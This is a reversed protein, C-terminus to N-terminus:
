KHRATPTPSTRKKQTHKEGAMRVKPFYRYKHSSMHCRMADLSVNRMKLFAHYSGYHSCSDHFWGIKSASTQCGRPVDEEAGTAVDAATRRTGFVQITAGHTPLRSFHFFTDIYWSPTELFIPTGWFPHNIISFGLSFFMCGFLQISFDYRRKKHLGSRVEGSHHSQTAFGRIQTIRM